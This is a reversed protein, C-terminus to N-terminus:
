GAAGAVDPHDIIDHILSAGGGVVMATLVRGVPGALGPAVAFLNVDALFGVAFGSAFAIYPVFWLDLDPFRKRIPEVLYDILAKNAVALLFAIALLNRDLM